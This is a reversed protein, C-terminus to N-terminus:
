GGILATTGFSRQMHEDLVRDIGSALGDLSARWRRISGLTLPWGATAAARLKRADDHALGNRVANFLRLDDQWRHARDPYKDTLDKWLKMGFLGFDQDLSRSEANGRDLRRANMYATMVANQTREGAPALVGVLAVIAEDHLDRAFGQFEAALRLIIAHHLEAALWSRGSGADKIVVQASQLRDLNAARETRWTSLAKSPM